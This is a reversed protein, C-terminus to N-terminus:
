KADIVAKMANLEDLNAQRADLAQQKYDEASIATITAIEAAVQVIAAELRARSITTENIVIPEQGAKDKYYVEQIRLSDDESQGTSNPEKTYLQEAFLIQNSTLLSFTILIIILYRM